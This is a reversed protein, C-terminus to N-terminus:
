SSHCGPRSGGRAGPPEPFIDNGIVTQLLGSIFEVPSSGEMEEPLGVIRLNQRRSRNELDEMKSALATNAKELQSVKATLEALEDSHATLTNEIATIKQSHSDLVASINELLTRIPMLPTELSTSLNMKLEATMSARHKELEQVLSTLTLSDDMNAAKAVQAPPSAGKAQRQSRSM